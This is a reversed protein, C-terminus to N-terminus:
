NFKAEVTIIYTISIYIYNYGNHVIRNYLNETYTNIHKCHINQCRNDVMITQKQIYTHLYLHLYKNLYFYFIDRSTINYLDYQKRNYQM